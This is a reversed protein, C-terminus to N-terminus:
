VNPKGGEPDLFRRAISSHLYEDRTGFFLENGVHLIHSAFSVAASIDHSIMIVTVGDERNLRQILHYMDQTVLPDLGAVPEDLLLM